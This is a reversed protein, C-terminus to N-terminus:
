GATSSSWVPSARKRMANLTEDRISAMEIAVKGSTVGREELAAALAEVPTGKQSALAKRFCVGRPPHEEGQSRRLSAETARLEIDPSESAFLSTYPIPLSSLGERRGLVRVDGEEERPAGLLLM